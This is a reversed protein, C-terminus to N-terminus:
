NLFTIILENELNYIKCGQMYEIAKKVINVKINYYEKDKSVTLIDVGIREYLDNDNIDNLAKLIGLGFRLYEILKDASYLVMLQSTTFKSNYFSYCELENFQIEDNM